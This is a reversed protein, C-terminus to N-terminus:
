RRGPARRGSSVLWWRRAHRTFPRWRSVSPAPLAPLAPRPAPQVRVQFNELMKAPFMGRVMLGLFEVMALRPINQELFIKDLLPTPISMIKDMQLVPMEMLSKDFDINFHNAAVRDAQQVSPVRRDIDRRVPLWWALTALPDAELYAMEVPTAGYRPDEKISELQLLLDSREAVAGDWQHVRRRTQKDYFADRLVDYEGNLFSLLYRDFRHEPLEPHSAAILMMSALKLQGMSSCMADRVEEPSRVMVQRVWEGVQMYPKYFRTANGRCDTEMRFLRDGRIRLGAMAASRLLFQRVLKSEKMGRPDQCASAGHPGATMMTISAFGDAYARRSYMLVSTFLVCARIRNQMWCLLAMDDAQQATALVPDTGLCLMGVHSCAASLHQLLLLASQAGRCGRDIAADEGGEPNAIGLVRCVALWEQQRQPPRTAEGGPHGWWRAIETLSDRLYAEAEDLDGQSLSDSRVITMANRSIGPLDPAGTDNPQTDQTQSLEDGQWDEGGSAGDDAGDAREDVEELDDELYELDDPVDYLTTSAM